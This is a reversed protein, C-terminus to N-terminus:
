TCLGHGLDREAEYRNASRRAAKSQGPAEADQQAIAPGVRSLGAADEEPQYVMWTEGLSLRTIATLM